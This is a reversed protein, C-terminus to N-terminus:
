LISSVRELQAELVKRLTADNTELTYKGKQLRKLTIPVSKNRTAGPRKKLGPTKIDAVSMGVASDHVVYENKDAAFGGGKGGPAIASPDHRLADYDEDSQSGSADTSSAYTSKAVADLANKMSRPPSQTDLTSAPQLCATGDADLHGVLQPVDELSSSRSTNIRSPKAPLSPPM